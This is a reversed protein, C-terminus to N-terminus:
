IGTSLGSGTAARIAECAELADEAAEGTHLRGGAAMQAERLNKGELLEMVIFPEGAETMEVDFIAVAHASKLNSAARAELMFRETAERNALAGPLMLKIASERGLKLHTAVVVVGMGGHGLVREVRYKGAIVDGERVM